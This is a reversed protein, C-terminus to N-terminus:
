ATQRLVAARALDVSVLQSVGREAMTVGFLRDMHAMTVRHHTIVLFRTGTTEAIDSVLRCFGDVNADDLPADVEDLVCVPVPHTLFIAFILAIATLAQEGGSLLSLSTLRKGPPSALIDLGADLPDDGGAWALEAWGGGFLRGFLKGFHENLADFAAILRARGEQDLAAIGRRLEAIAATLDARDHELNKLQTEAEEAQRAALLNVPGMGSRERVLRDRRAALETMGADVEEAEGGSRVLVTLEDPTIGLREGVEARLTDLMDEAAARRAQLGARWERATAVAAEARRAAGVAQQLKAEASILADEAAHRETAAAATSAALAEREVAIAQPRGILARVEATAGAHREVLVAQQAAADERRKRWPEEEEAIAALRHRRGEAARMVRDLAARADADRRRAEGATSRAADLAARCTAPDALLALASDAEAIQTALEALEAGIKDITEVAAALKADVALTRRSLESEAQRARTLREGASRLTGAATREAAAAREREARRRATEAGAQRAQAGARAIECKLQDLRNRQRLQEATANSGAGNRVFGDWRWLRGDRDVLSQGPRLRAQLRCGDAANEVWGTHGLRRALAAPAMVMEGFPHAGDPLPAPDLTALTVWGAGNATAPESVAPAALEGDFLAAVAAEFGASVRLEWLLSTGEARSSNSATLIRALAKAEAELPALIRDADRVQEVAETERRQCAILTEATEAAETRAQEVDAAALAMAASAAAIAEPSASAALLAEHQRESEALRSLLRARRELLGRRQCDLAVRRAEASASAETAQQLRNEAEALYRAAAAARAAADGSESEAGADARELDAREQALKTLAIEADALRGAERDRDGAIQALHREAEVRAATVRALERDLTEGAHAIRQLEAAASLQRLRLPPLVAEAEARAQERRLAEDGAMALDREAARLEAALLAAEDAAQQWRLQLLRAETERIQEGLRRYRTAQRAQKKLTESQATLTATLDDLRALNDETARLRLEAEHRRAHLGATGAAEDLLARRERPQAAILSGIQGQGILAGSHPGSAADAFLLHVDRARVERGNVRYASGAGRVIRRTVEITATDNFALPAARASNDLTLAVEALNRPPRRESGGFIVDDMEGGRLRKASAEGMVWRLAEVLNSKGCGNPGVIGTLGPAIVLETPDVFSKFGALRLREVQM